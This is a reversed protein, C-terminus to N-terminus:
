QQEWMRASLQKQESGIANTYIATVEIASHGMWKSLMNLPVGASIANVGYGHRLGKPSTHPGDQIKADAMVAKIHRWATVRSWQWLKRNLKGPRRVQHVLDLTNMLAQPVPVSRYIGARRKKLTEFVVVENEIDIRDVTLNLAESIRCGTFHLTECFSRIEGSTKMASQLFSSRESATLYLRKGYPDNLM